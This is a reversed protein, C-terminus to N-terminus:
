CLSPNGYHDPHHPYDHATKGNLKRREKLIYTIHSNCGYKVAEGMYFPPIPSLPTFASVGLFSTFPLYVKAYDNYCIGFPFVLTKTFNFTFIKHVIYKACKCVVILSRTEGDNFLANGESHRHM